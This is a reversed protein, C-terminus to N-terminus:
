GLVVVDGSTFKMDATQGAQELRSLRSVAAITIVDNTATGPTVSLLLYRKRGKLDVHYTVLKAATIDESSRAFSSNFTAFSTVVTTDLEKLALTPGVANTNIESAIGLQIVAYKAGLTDLMATVTAGNTVSQPAVLLKLEANQESNM